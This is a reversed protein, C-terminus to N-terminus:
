RRLLLFLITGGYFLWLAASILLAMRPQRVAWLTLHLLLSYFAIYPVFFLGAFVGIVPDRRRLAWVALAVGIAISLIPPLLALPAINYTRSAIRSAEAQMPSLWFGWLIFSVLVVLALVLGAKVWDRPKFSLVYGPAVQPKIILLPGSYTPPVLLALCVLWDINLEFASQLALFSTLAIVVTRFNGGLKFVAGALIAFYLCMQLLVALPLPILSFPALLVAAWPPNAFNIIQYPNALHPLTQTFTIRQDYWVPFLDAARAGLAVGWWLLAMIQSFFLAKILGPPVRARNASLSLQSM